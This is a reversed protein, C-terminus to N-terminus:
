TGPLKCFPPYNWTTSYCQPNTWQFYCTTCTSCNNQYGNLTAGATQIRTATDFDQQLADATFATATSSDALGSSFIQNQLATFANWFVTPDNPDFTLANVQVIFSQLQAIVNLNLDKSDQASDYTSVAFNLETNAEAIYQAEAAPTLYQCASSQYTAIFNPITTSAYVSLQSLTNALYTDAQQRESIVANMLSVLSSTATNPSAGGGASNYYNICSQYAAGTLGQCCASGTCGPPGGFVPPGGPSTQPADPTIVGLLGNVGEQILRNLAANALANIYDSLDEAGILADTEIQLANAVQSGITEGPVTQICTSPIDGPTNDGDKDPGYPNNPDEQCSQTGIYSAGSTIKNANDEAGAVEKLYENWSLLFAGYVNNQMEWSSGYAIWGGSTFNDYFANINAIVQNLTCTVQQGFKQVPLLGVKIQFGFPSCMFGFPTKSIFEGAADGAAQSVFGRWDTLFKPKGGGQIWSITQDVIMDLVAKKLSALITKFIWESFGECVSATAGSSAGKSTKSSAGQLEVQAADVTPVNTATKTAASTKGTIKGSAEEAASTAAGLAECISKSVSASSARATRVLPSAVLAIGSALVVAATLIKISTKKRM